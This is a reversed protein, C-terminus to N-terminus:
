LSLTEVWGLEIFSDMYVTVAQPATSWVRNAANIWEQAAEKDAKSFEIAAHSMYYIPEDDIYSFGAAMKEAEATKGQQLQCIVVKFQMLKKTAEDANGALLAQFQQQASAWLPAAGTEGKRTKEAAEVFSIEALNFKPHFSAPNLKQAKQFAQRASDFLRMKTLVAGKLNQVIFLEPEIAEAETLKQLAEQLRIGGVYVSADNVAKKIKEMKEPPMKELKELTPDVERAPTVAAPTPQPEAADQALAAPLLSALALLPSVLRKM